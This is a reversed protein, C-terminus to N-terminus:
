SNNEGLLRWVYRIGAMKAACELRLPVNEVALKQWPTSQLCSRFIGRTKAQFILKKGLTSCEFYRRIWADAINATWPTKCKTRQRTPIGLVNWLRGNWSQAACCASHCPPTVNPNLYHLWIVDAIAGFTMAHLKPASSRRVGTQTHNKNFTKQRWNRM